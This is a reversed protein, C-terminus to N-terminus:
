GRARPLIEDINEAVGAFGPALALEKDIAVFDVFCQLQDALYEDVAADSGIYARAKDSAHEAVAEARVGREGFGTFVETVNQHEIAITVANGPGVDNALGRLLLQEPSWNLRRGIVELERQAIGIPLAAVYAEAYARVRDGRRNLECNSNRTLIQASVGVNQAQDNLNSPIPHVIPHCRAM